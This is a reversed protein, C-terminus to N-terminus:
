ACFRGVHMPPPERRPHPIEIPGPPEERPAQTEPDPLVPRKDSNGFPRPKGPQQACRERISPSTSIM